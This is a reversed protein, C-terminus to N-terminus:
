RKGSLGASAGALLRQLIGPSPTTTTDKVGTLMGMASKLLGGGSGGNNNNNSNGGMMAMATKMLGGGGGSNSNSNGGVLSSLMGGSGSNGSNMGLLHKAALGMMGSNGSDNGGLKSALAAMALTSQIDGYAPPLFVVSLLMAPYCLVLFNERRCHERSFYM